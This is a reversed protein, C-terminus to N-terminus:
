SMSDTEFPKKLKVLKLQDLRRYQGPGHPVGEMTISYILETPFSICQAFTSDFLCCHYNCLSAQVKKYQLRRFENKHQPYLAFNGSAIGLDIEGRTRQCDPSCRGTGTTTGDFRRIPIPNLLSLVFEIFQPGNESSGFRVRVDFYPDCRMMNPLNRMENCYM